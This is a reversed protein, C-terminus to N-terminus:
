AAVAFDRARAYLDVGLTHFALPLDVILWGEQIKERRSAPTREVIRARAVVMDIAM